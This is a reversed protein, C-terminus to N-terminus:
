CGGPPDDPADTVCTDRGEGGEAHDAGAGGAVVDDGPGASLM